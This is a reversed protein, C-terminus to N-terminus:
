RRALEAMRAAVWEPGAAAALRKKSLNQRMVWRVDRDDERMWREMLRRGEDPAAAVAVSWCYALGQRLV